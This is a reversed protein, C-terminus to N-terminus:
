NRPPPPTGHKEREHWKLVKYLYQNKVKNVWSSAPLVSRVQFPKLCVVFLIYHLEADASLLVPKVEINAFVCIRLCSKAEFFLLFPTKKTMDCCFHAPLSCHHQCCTEKRDSRDNHPWILAFFFIWCTCRNGHCGLAACSGRRYGLRCTKMLRIRGDVWGDSTERLFFYLASVENTKHHLAPARWLPATPPRPHENNPKNREKWRVAARNM